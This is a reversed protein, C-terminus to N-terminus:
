GSAEAEFVSNELSVGNSTTLFLVVVSAAFTSDRVAYMTRIHPTDLFALVTCHSLCGSQAIAWQHDFM